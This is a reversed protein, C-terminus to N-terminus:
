DKLLSRILNEKSFDGFTLLGMMVPERGLLRRRIQTVPNGAAQLRRAEGRLDTLWRLKETLAGTANPVVGAHADFLIRPELHFTRRLSDILQTLNEDRRALRVKATIFLDGGFLWRRDPDFFVVHDASHGPTAVVQLLGGEYSLTEPLPEAEM